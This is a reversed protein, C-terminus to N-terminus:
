PMQRILYGRRALQALLGDEGALHLAGVLVLEIEPSGAMSEIQPMWANNRAVLLSQYVRPFQERLPTGALEELAELDGSRWALTM